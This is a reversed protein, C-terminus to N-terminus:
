YRGSFATISICFVAFYDVPKLGGLVYAGHVYAGHVYAGHIYTQKTHWERLRGDRV